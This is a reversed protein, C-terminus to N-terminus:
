ITHPALRAALAELVGQKIEPQHDLLARFSRDTVVLARGPSTMTVTATRPAQWVLAIEGFFDGPGLENIREGDQTVEATGDLLVFFERGRDGQTMLQKGESLDLEDAIGAIEALQGKSCHSFLPVSKILDTKADRGLRVLALRREVRSSTM